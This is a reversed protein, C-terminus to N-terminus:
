TKPEIEFGDKSDKIVWGQTLLADRLEDAKGWDKAQKADWRAQALAVIEEPADVQKAEVTFLELGLAYLLSGLARLLARASDADASAAPNSGIVGFIAGLCAATNLNTRLADWAKALRGFDEPATATVYTANFPDKEEGTKTLLAEAFRELRTLASQSAHLGDFTFNLQQRYSGAILTYRVIMPSFGKARLDDLTYLNGLSKSMKAGEVMLHASHFWHKCFDHGHACESQAIENEHHPFCLDIGGGHLDITEGDFASDVMASCELHWGPRGEGWPSSWYNAGDEPKRSKWLAFDTVSERDYEDADNLEGASNETQTKLERQKLRSLRGYDEFSGVRFYVSGDDTAYAHGKEILKEVLAIQQPIHAVASPEISPPLMNLADCDAHFKETWHATFEVLSQGEEQSRRITKDDLDTINRVHKVATGDVELVRRLTDQILFTRFNGIHAPGYVTPGCCYFRLTDGCAPALTQVSRSLTDYLEVSMAAM